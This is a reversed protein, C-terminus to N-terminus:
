LAGLLTLSTVTVLGMLTIAAYAWVISRTLRRLTVKGKHLNYERMGIYIAIANVVLVAVLMTILTIVLAITAVNM